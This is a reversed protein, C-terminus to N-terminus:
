ENVEQAGRFYARADARFLLWAIGAFIILHIAFNHSRDFASLIVHFAMWALALWRAWNQARVMFVGILLALLETVEILAGDPHRLESFNHVFGIVGVAIFLGAIVWISIPPKNANM